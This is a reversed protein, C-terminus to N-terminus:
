GVRLPMQEYDNKLREFQERSIARFSQSTDGFLGDAVPEVIKEEIMFRSSSFPMPRGDATFYIYGGGAKIAEETSASQRCIVGGSKLVKLYALQVNKHLKRTKQKPMVHGKLRNSTTKRSRSWCTPMLQRQKGRMSQGQTSQRRDTIM